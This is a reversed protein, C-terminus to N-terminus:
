FSITKQDADLTAVGGVPLTCLPGSHGFPANMVVPINLGKIHDNIIEELSFGFPTVSSDGNAIVRGIVLGSIKHLVGALRLQALMRDYRSMQDGVDELFLIAGAADPMFPTGALAAMMSLNGGILPGSAKGGQMAEAETWNLTCPKGQLAAIMQDLESPQAKAVRSLTPGHYGTLGTKAYFGNLLATGDSFAIFPKPNNAIGNWDLMPLFHMARNGGRAAMVADIKPDCFVDTLAMARQAASGASQNDTLFNQSHVRVTFGRKELIGVGALDPQGRSSPAIIAITGNDPLPKPTM